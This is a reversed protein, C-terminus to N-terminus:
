FVPDINIENAEARERVTRWAMSANALIIEVMSRQSERRSNLDNMIQRISGFLPVEKLESAGRVRRIEVVAYGAFFEAADKKTLADWAEQMRHGHTRFVWAAGAPTAGNDVIQSTLVTLFAEFPSYDSWGGDESKSMVDDPRLPLQDRRVRSQFDGIELDTLKLFDARRM